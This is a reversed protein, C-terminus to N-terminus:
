RWSAPFQKKIIEPMSALDPYYGNYLPHRKQMFASASPEKNSIGPSLYNAAFAPSPAFAFSLSGRDENAPGAAYYVGAKLPIANTSGQVRSSLSAVSLATSFSVSMSRPQGADNIFTGSISISGLKIAPNLAAIISLSSADFGRFRGNISDQAGVDAPLILQYAYAYSYFSWAGGFVPSVIFAKFKAGVLYNPPNTVGASLDDSSFKVVFGLPCISVANDKFADIDIPFLGGGSTPMQSPSVRQIDRSLFFRDVNINENMLKLGFLNLFPERLLQSSTM